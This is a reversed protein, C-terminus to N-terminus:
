ILIPSFKNLLVYGRAVTQEFDAECATTCAPSTFVTKPVATAPFKM